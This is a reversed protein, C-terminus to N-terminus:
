QLKKFILDDALVQGTSNKSLIDIFGDIGESFEFERIKVIITPEVLITSDGSKSHVRVLFKPIPNLENNVPLKESGSMARKQPDFPTENAFSVEYRGAALDPRFRVYEDSDARGGNTLYFDGFGKNPWRKFRPAVWFYPTTFFRHYRLDANDIIEQQLDGTEKDAAPYTPIFLEVLFQQLGNKAGPCDIELLLM